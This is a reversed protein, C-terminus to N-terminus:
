GYKMYLQSPLNWRRVLQTRQEGDKEPTPQTFTLVPANSEEYHPTAASGGVGGHIQLNQLRSEVDISEYPPEVDAAVVVRTSTLQHSADDLQSDDTVSDEPRRISPTVSVVQVQSPCQISSLPQTFLDYSIKIMIMLSADSCCSVDGVHHDVAFVFYCVEVFLADVDYDYM